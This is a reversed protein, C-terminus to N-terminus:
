TCKHNVVLDLEALELAALELGVLELAALELAVLELGALELEALDLIVPDLNLLHFGFDAQDLGVFKMQALEFLELGPGFQLLELELNLLQLHPLHQLQYDIEVLDVHIHYVLELEALDIAAQM